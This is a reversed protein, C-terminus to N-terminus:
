KATTRGRRSGVTIAGVFVATLAILAVGVGRGPLAHAFGLVALIVVANMVLAAISLSATSRIEAGLEARLERHKRDLEDATGRTVEETIKEVMESISLAGPPRGAPPTKRPVPTLAAAKVVGADVSDAGITSAQVAHVIILSPTKEDESLM